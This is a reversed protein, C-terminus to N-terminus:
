EGRFSFITNRNAEHQATQRWFNDPQARNVRGVPVKNMEERTIEAVFAADTGGIVRHRGTRVLADPWIHDWAGVTNYMSFWDLDAQVPNAYFCTPLLHSVLYLGHSVTEWCVGSNATNTTERSIDAESWSSHLSRFAAGVLKANSMPGSLEGLIKETCRVSPLAVCINDRAGLRSLTEITGDGYIFDPLAVLMGCGSQLCRALQRALEIALISVGAIAEDVHYINVQVGFQETLARVRAEDKLTTCIDWAAANQKLTALNRPWALSKILGREFWSIYEDGWVITLLRFDRM